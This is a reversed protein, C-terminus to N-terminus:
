SQDTAGRAWRQLKERLMPLTITGDELVRDHFQRIDFREGLQARAMDRLRTIELFGLMYSLGQGPWGIRRDVDLAAQEASRSTHATEFDIAQQRTWGKVHLGTEMVLTAFGYVMGELDNLRDADSGYLGMEDALRESYIGWGESFASNGLYRTVPHVGHREQAIALQFHHGPVAEHFTLRDMELRAGPKTALYLNVRYVGPRAGDLSPRLYQGLPVSPEQFAPFPQVVVKSAPVIGFWKPVAAWARAVITDIVPVVAARSRLTYASDRHLREMVGRYDSTGYSRQALAAMTSEARAVERLGIEHIQEGSLGLTTYRRIAARYCEAGHPNATVAVATRAAPLYENALYDRYRRLAPTIRTAVLREFAARFGPASDRAAPSFFPSSTPETALLKDMGELVRRVNVEPETYGLRVGEKLNAIEADIRRPLRRWRALAQARLEPTGVPQQQALIAAGAQWGALPHVTWLRNRCVRLATSAELEERLLGYTVWEPRGALAGPDITRLRALWRDERAQWQREAAASVDRLRDHRAGPIGFITGAEPFARLREALYQDAISNVARAISDGPAPMALVALLLLVGPPFAM